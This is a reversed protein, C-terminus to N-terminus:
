KGKLAAAFFSCSKPNELQKKSKKEKEAIIM